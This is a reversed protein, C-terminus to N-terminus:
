NGTYGIEYDEIVAAVAASICNQEVRIVRGLCRVRVPGNCTIESPLTLVLQVASGVVFPQSVFFCIGHSSIDRTHAEAERAQNDRVRVPLCLRFRRHSRREVQAKVM